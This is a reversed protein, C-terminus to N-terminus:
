EIGVRLILLTALASSQAVDFYSIRLQLISLKYNILLQITALNIYIVITINNYNHNFDFLSFNSKCFGVVVGIIVVLGCLLENWCTSTKRAITM